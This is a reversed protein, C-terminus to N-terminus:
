KAKRALIAAKRRIRDKLRHARAQKRAQCEGFPLALTPSILRLAVKVSLLLPRTHHIKINTTDELAAFTNKPAASKLRSDACLQFVLHTCQKLHLM